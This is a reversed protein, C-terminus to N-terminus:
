GEQLESTEMAIWAEVDDDSPWEAFHAPYGRQHLEDMMGPCNFIYSWTGNHNHYLHNFQKYKDGFYFITTNFYDFSYTENGEEVELVPSVRPINFWDPRLQEMWTNELNKKILFPKDGM